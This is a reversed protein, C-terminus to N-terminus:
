FYWNLGGNKYDYEIGFKEGALYLYGGVKFDHTQYYRAVFETEMHEPIPASPVHTTGKLKLSQGNGPTPNNKYTYERKVDFTGVPQLEGNFRFKMIIDDESKVDWEYHHDVFQGDNIKFSVKAKNKYFSDTEWTLVTDIKKGDTMEITQKIKRGANEFGAKMLEKGNFEVKRMYGDLNEIMLTQFWDRNTTVKFYKGKKWEGQVEFDQYFRQSYYFFQSMEELFQRSFKANYKGKTTIYVEKTKSGDSGLSFIDFDFKYLKKKNMLLNSELNFNSLCHLCNMKYFMRYFPNRDRMFWDMKAKYGLFNANSVPNVKTKVEFEKEDNYNATTRFNLSKMNDDTDFVVEFTMGNKPLYQVKLEQFRKYAFRMKGDGVFVGTWRVEHLFERPAKNLVGKIKASFIDKNNLFFKVYADSFDKKSKFEFDFKGAPGLDFQVRFHAHQGDYDIDAYGNYQQGDVDVVLDIKKTAQNYQGQFSYFKEGVFEGKLLGNNDYDLKWTYEQAPKKFDDYFFRGEMKSKYDSKLELQGSPPRDPNNESNSMFEVNTKYFSGDWSRVFKLNGSDQGGFLFGIEYDVSLDFLGDGVTNGSDANVVLKLSKAPMGRYFKRVDKFYIEAKGGKVKNSPDIYKLKFNFGMKELNFERDWASRKERVMGLASAYADPDAMVGQIMDVLDAEKMIGGYACSISLALLGLSLIRQM